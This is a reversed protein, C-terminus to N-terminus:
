GRRSPPCLLGGRVRCVGGGQLGSGTGEPLFVMVGGVQLGSGTGEPLFVMAEEAGGERREVLQSMDVVGDNYPASQQM